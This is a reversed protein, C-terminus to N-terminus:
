SRLIKVLSIPYGITLSVVVAQKSWPTGVTIARYYIYTFDKAGLIFSIDM